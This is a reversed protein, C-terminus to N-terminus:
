LKLGTKILRFLTQQNITSSLCSVPQRLSLACQYKNLFILVVKLQFNKMCFILSVFLLFRRYAPESASSSGCLFLIANSPSTHPNMKFKRWFWNNLINMRYFDLCSARNIFWYIVMYRDSIKRICYTSINSFCRLQNGFGELSFTCHDVLKRM